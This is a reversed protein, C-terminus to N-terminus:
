ARAHAEALRPDDIHKVADELMYKASITVLELDHGNIRHKRFMPDEEYNFRRPTDTIRYERALRSIEGKLAQVEYLEEWFPALVEQIEARVRRKWDEKDFDRIGEGRDRMMAWALNQAAHQYEIVAEAHEDQRRDLVKENWIVQAQLESGDHAFNKPLKKDSGIKAEHEALDARAQALAQEAATVAGSIRKMKSEAAEAAARAIDEHTTNFPKTM